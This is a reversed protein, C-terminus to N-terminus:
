GTEANYRQLKDELHTFFWEVDALLHSVLFLTARSDESCYSTWYTSSVGWFSLSNLLALYLHYYLNSCFVCCPGNWSLKKATIFWANRIVCPSEYCGNAAERVTVALSCVIGKGCCCRVRWLIQIVIHTCAKDVAYLGAADFWSGM